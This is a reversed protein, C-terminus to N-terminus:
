LYKDGVERESRRGTLVLAIWLTSLWSLTVCIEKAFFRFNETDSTQYGFCIYQPRQCRVHSVIGHHTAKSESSTNRKKFFYLSPLMSIIFFEKQLPVMIIVNTRRPCVMHGLLYFHPHYCVLRMWMSTWPQQVINSLMLSDLCVFYESRYTRRWKM